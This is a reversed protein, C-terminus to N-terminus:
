GPTSDPDITAPTTWSVRYLKEGRIEVTAEAGTLRCFGTFLGVVFEDLVDHHLRVLRHEPSREIVDAIEPECMFWPHAQTVLLDIMEAPKGRLARVVERNQSGWGQASDEAAERAVENTGAEAALFRLAENFTALPTPETPDMTKFPPAGVARELAEWREAGIKAKARGYLLLWGMARVVQQELPKKVM